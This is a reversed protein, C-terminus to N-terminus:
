GKIEIHGEGKAQIAAAPAAGQATLIGMDVAAVPSHVSEQVPLLALEIVENINDVPIVKIAYSSFIHQWNDKPIIVREAGAQMAAEVKVVIGGVPMVKGRISIEGTM